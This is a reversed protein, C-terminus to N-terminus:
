PQYAGIAECEACTRWKDTPKITGEQLADDAVDRFADAIWIRQRRRDGLGDIEAELQGERDDSRREDGAGEGLAHLERGHEPEDAQPRDEDIRRDGVPDPTRVAEEGGAVGVGIDLNEVEGAAGHHVDIGADGAQHRAQHEALALVGARAM